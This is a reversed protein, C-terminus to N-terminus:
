KESFFDTLEDKKVSSIEGKLDSRLGFFPRRKRRKPHHLDGKRSQTGIIHTPEIGLDYSRTQRHCNTAKIFSRKTSNSILDPVERSTKIEQVNVKKKPVM